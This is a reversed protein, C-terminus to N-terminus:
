RVPRMLHGVAYKAISRGHLVGHEVARRFHIGIYIRSAANEDAAQSFSSFSRLVPTPDACSDEVPLTTSCATFHVADTGLVQKLIEAAAGGQVAHASDHDPM